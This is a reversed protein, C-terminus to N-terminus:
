YDVRWLFLGEPRATPVDATRLRAALIARTEEPEAAGDGVRILWGALSRVMKYLFGEGVAIITITHGRKRVQLRTLHRVTSVVVGNANATFSAFDHRGVLMDAACQMRETDLAKRVHTRVHRIDPPLVEGNWIHYRYEKSIASRRAHFDSATTRVRNVRIDPPLLANLARQLAIPTMRTDLDVHAVQARAHVGRDTRGSGHLRVEQGTLTALATTIAQQVTTGNPQVQWGVYATGDYAVDMRYRKM